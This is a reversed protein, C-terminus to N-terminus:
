EHRLYISQFLPFGYIHFSFSKSSNIFLVFLHKKARLNLACSLFKIFLITINKFLFSYIHLNLLM